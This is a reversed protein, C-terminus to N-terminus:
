EPPNLAEVDATTVVPTEPKLEAGPTGRPTVVIQRDPGMSVTDGTNPDIVKGHMLADQRLGESLFFKPEAPESLADAARAKVLKQRLDAVEARLRELEEAETEAPQDDIALDIDPDPLDDVRPPKREAM